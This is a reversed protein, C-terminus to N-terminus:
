IDWIEGPLPWIGRSLPALFTRIDIYTYIYIYIDLYIYVCVCMIRAKPMGWFLYGQAIKPFGLGLLSVGWIVGICGRYGLEGGGEGLFFPVVLKPFGAFVDLLM